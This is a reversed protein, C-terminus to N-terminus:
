RNCTAPSSPSVMDLSALFISLMVALLIFVLSFGTPYEIQHESASKMSAADDDSQNKTFSTKERQQTSVTQEQSSCVDDTSMPISQERPERM